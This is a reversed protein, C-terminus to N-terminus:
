LTKWFGNMDTYEVRSISSITGHSGASGTVRVKEIVDHLETAPHGPGTFMVYKMLGKRTWSRASSGSVWGSGATAGAAKQEYKLADEKNIVHDVSDTLYLRVSGGDGRYGTVFYGEVSVLTGAARKGVQFEHVTVFQNQSKPTASAAPKGAARRHKPTAIAYTGALAVLALAIAATRRM